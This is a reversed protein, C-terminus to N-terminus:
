TNYIRIAGDGYGCALYKDTPDFQCTFCESSSDGLTMKHNFRRMEGKANSMKSTKRPSRTRERAMEAEAQM